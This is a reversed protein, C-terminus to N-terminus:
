RTPRISAGRRQGEPVRPAYITPHAEAASNPNPRYAGAYGVAAGNCPGGLYGMPRGVDIMRYSCQASAAQPAMIAVGIAVVALGFNRM